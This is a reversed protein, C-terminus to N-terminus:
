SLGKVTIGAGGAPSDVRGCLMFSHTDGAWHFVKGRGGLLYLSPRRAEVM